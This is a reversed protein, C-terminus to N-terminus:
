ATVDLLVQPLAPLETMPEPSKGCHASIGGVTLGADTLRQQLSALHENILANTQSHEAWFVTNIVGKALTVRIQIPGLTKLQFALNVTWSEAAKSKENENEKDIRLRFVDIQENHRVPIEMIWSRKGDDEHPTSAVQNLIIRSLGSEVSRLLEILAQQLNAQQTTATAARGQRQSQQSQQPQQPQPPLPPRTIAQMITQPILSSVPTAKTLTFLSALLSLLSGKFDTVLNPMAQGQATQPQQLTRAIKAELFLGSQNIAQQLGQPTSFSKNSPLTNLIKQAMEVVHQPLQHQADVQKGPVEIISALRHLLPQLPLQQPLASRVAQGLSDTTKTNSLIRLTAITGPNVIELKLPQQLPLAQTSKADVIQGALNLRAIGAQTTNLVIAELIRGTQWQKLAHIQSPLKLTIAPTTNNQSILNLIAQIALNRVELQLTQGIQLSTIPQSVFPVQASLLAGGVNITVQGNRPTSVITAKVLQGIKWSDVVSKSTVIQALTIARPLKPAPIEM